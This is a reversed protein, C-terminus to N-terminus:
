FIRADRLQEPYDRGLQNKRYNTEDLYYDDVDHGAEEILEFARKEDEAIIDFIAETAQQGDNMKLSNSKKEDKFFAEFRKM